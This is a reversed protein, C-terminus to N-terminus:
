EWLLYPTELTLLLMCSRKVSLSTGPVSDNRSCFLDCPRGQNLSHPLLSWRKIPPTVFDCQLPHSCLSLHLISATKPFLWSWIFDQSWSLQPFCLYLLSFVSVSQPRTCPGTYNQPCPGSGNLPNVILHVKTFTVYCPPLSPVIKSSRSAEKQRGFVKTTPACQSLGFCQVRYFQAESLSLYHKMTFKHLLKSDKRSLQNQSYLILLCHANPLLCEGRFAWGMVTRCLLESGKHPALLFTM